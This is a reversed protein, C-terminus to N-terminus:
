EINQVQARPVSALIQNSTFNPMKNARQSRGESCAWHVPIACVCDRFKSREVEGDGALDRM